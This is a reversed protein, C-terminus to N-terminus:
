IIFRVTSLEPLSYVHAHWVVLNMFFFFRTFCNIKLGPVIPVFPLVCITSAVPFLRECIKNILEAAASPNVERLYAHLSTMAAENFRVIRKILSDISSSSPSSIESVGDISANDAAAPIYNEEHKKEEDLDTTVSM